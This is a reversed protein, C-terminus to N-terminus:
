RANPLHVNLREKMARSGAIVNDLETRRETIEKNIKDLEAKRAILESNVETLERRATILESNVRQLIADLSVSMAEV